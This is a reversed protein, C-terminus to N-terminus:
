QGGQTWPLLIAVRFVRGDDVWVRHRGGLQDAREIIGTLGNGLRHVEGAPLPSSAPLVNGCCIEVGHDPNATVQLRMPAGQAHKRANTLLEQTVRYASRSVLPDLDAHSDVVVSAVLPLGASMSEDVLASVDGLDPVAEAVDSDGPQRLVTLLSRLDEMSQQAGQRVVTASAALKPDERAAMELAGAHISLLSLRHGLADHVERALRDREQQRALTEGLRDARQDADVQKRRSHRLDTRSRMVLAIAVTVTLLVVAIVTVVWWRIPEGDAAGCLSHWFSTDDTTGRGDQWVSRWVALAALVGAAAAERWPRRRILGALCILAPLADLPLLIPLVCAIATIPLPRRHRWVMLVALALGALAFLMSRDTAEAAPDLGRDALERSSEYASALIASFVCLVVVVTTWVGARTVRVRHRAAHATPPSVTMAPAYLEAAVDTDM